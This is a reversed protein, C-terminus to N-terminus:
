IRDYYDKVRDLFLMEVLEDIYQENREGLTTTTMLEELEDMNNELETAVKRYEFEGYKIRLLEKANSRPFTIEGTTLLEKAQESVRIAHYLSKWDVGQNSEAALARSGYEEFIKSVIKHAENFTITMGLKRNLVEFYTATRDDGSAVPLELLQTHEYNQIFAEYVERPYENLKAKHGYTVVADEFLKVAARATAMRSGKIGYKNAQQRIYGIFGAINRDIFFHRNLHFDHYWVDDMKHGLNEPTVFLLEYAIMDGTRVMAIFKNLAFSDDDVDYQSNKTTSSGTSVSVVQQINQMLIDRGSPLHVGKWDTDSTPTNTGYLHSGFKVRLLSRSSM